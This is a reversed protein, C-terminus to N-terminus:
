VLENEILYKRGLHTVEYFKNQASDFTTELLDLRLLEEVSHMAKTHGMVSDSILDISDYPDKDGAIEVLIEEQISSLRNNEPIRVTGVVPVSPVEGKKTAAAVEDVPFGAESLKRNAADTETEAGEMGASMPGVNIPVKASNVSHIGEMIEDFAIKGLGKDKPSAEPEPEPKTVSDVLGKYDKEVENFKTIWKENEKRLGEIESDKRTISQQLEEEIKYLERRILRSEEVTLLTEEEIEKKIDSIEKQRNRTFRFVFKAPYPYGFLYVLSMGFPFLFGQLYIDYSTSFITSDILALKEVVPIGSFVLLIFKYNFVVWSVIFSGMLPSVSREYLHARVSKVAESYM